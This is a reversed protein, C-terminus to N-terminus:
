DDEEWYEDYEEELQEDELESGCMPCYSVETGTDSLVKFEEGCHSCETWDRM